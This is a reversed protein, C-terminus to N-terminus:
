FKNPKLHKLERGIVWMTYYIVIRSKEGHPNGCKRKM